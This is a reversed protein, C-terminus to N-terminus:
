MTLLMAFMGIGMSLRCARPLAAAATPVGGSGDGAVSLLRSGSWLAYGGFYALLVGTLAPSGAASLHHGTHPGPATAMVLAMYTMASAGVAHHLRHARRDPRCAAALLLAVAPPGFVWAWVTGPVATGTVAMAAMGFGMLAEAADSEYAHLRRARATGADPGGPRPAGTGPPSCPDRRLRSLCYGGSAATLVALLWSVLTSGHM